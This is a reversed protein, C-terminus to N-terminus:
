LSPFEARAIHWRRQEATSGPVDNVRKLVIPGEINLPRGSITVGRIITPVEIYISGAAGQMEGAHGFRCDSVKVDAFRAAFEAETLGSARGDDSWLRYADGFRRTALADCYELARRVAGQATNEAAPPPADPDMHPPPPVNAAAVNSSPITDNAPLANGDDMGDIAANDNAQQNVQCATTMLFAALIPIQRRMVM